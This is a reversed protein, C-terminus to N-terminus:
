QRLKIKLKMGTKHVITINIQKQRYLLFSTNIKMIKKSIAGIQMILLLIIFIKCDINVHDLSKMTIYKTHYTVTSIGKFSIKDTSLVNPDNKKYQDLNKINILFVIM